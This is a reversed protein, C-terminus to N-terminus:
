VIVINGGSFVEISFERFRTALVKPPRSARVPKAM